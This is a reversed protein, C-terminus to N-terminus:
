KLDLKELKQNFKIIQEETLSNALAVNHVIPIIHPMIVDIGAAFSLAAREHFDYDKLGGMNLADTILLGEFKIEERIIKVIEASLSTPKSDIASYIAHNVMALKTKSALDKFPLFDTESLIKKETNIIAIGKHTDVNTRGLGPMHKTSPIIGAKISAKIFENALASIIKPDNSYSRDNTIYCDKNCDKPLQHPYHKLDLVPAFNGNIGLKKLEIAAKYTDKFLTKKALNLDKKALEGYYSAGKSKIINLNGIKDVFGGEQDAFIYLKRNPFLSKIQQTLKKVQEPSQFNQRNLIFGFPNIKKYSKAEEADVESGSITLILPTILKYEKAQLYISQSWLNIYIVLGAGIFVYSFIIIKCLNFLRSKWM